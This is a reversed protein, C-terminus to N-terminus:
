LCYLSPKKDLHNIEVLKDFVLPNFNKEELETSEKLIKEFNNKNMYVDQEKYNTTFTHKLKTLKRTFYNQKNTQKNKLQDLEFFAAKFKENDGGSTIRCITSENNENNRQIEKKTNTLNEGANKYSVGIYNSHYKVHPKKRKTKNYLNCNVKRTKKNNECSFALYDMKENKDDPHYYSNNGSNTTFPLLSIPDGNEVYRRFLIRNNEVFKNFQNISAKNMVRPAGFTLCVISKKINQKAILYSFLISCGGGLSHGTTVLKYNTSELFNKSLFNISETITYFIEGIIKLIGLLVGKNSGKCTKYPTISTLKLYSVASKISYTGRFCVFITNLRKDAVIYVSSYNSTSISIYKVNSSNFTQDKYKKQIIENIQKNIISIDNIKPEFINLVDIQKIKHLQKTLEPIDFIEIYNRLFKSNDMYSLRSLIACTHTILPIDM